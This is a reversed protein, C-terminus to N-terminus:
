SEIFVGDPSNVMIEWMDDDALLPGSISVQSLAGPSSTVEPSM